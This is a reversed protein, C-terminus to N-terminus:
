CLYGFFEVSSYGFKSKSLKLVVNYEKCRILVLELKTYADNYDNALILMNDFIVIMWETYDSFIETMVMM